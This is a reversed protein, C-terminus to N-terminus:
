ARARRLALGAGIVGVAGVAILAMAVSVIPAFDDKPALSPAAAIASLAPPEFAPLAAVMTPLGVLTMSAEAAPVSALRGVYEEYEDPFVAVHYHPPRRERTADLVGTGELSLLTKELWRRASSSRPIRLDVAIGTPHVSLKSANRPQRTLPRTLSTVVLVEGTAERYQHALREIFLKVASRAYPFAVKGVSYNENGWLRELRDKNAFERVQAPTRLFTLKHQKAVYHQRRMSARSGGLGVRVDLDAGAVEASASAVPHALLVAALLLRAPIKVRISVGCGRSQEQVTRPVPSDNRCM